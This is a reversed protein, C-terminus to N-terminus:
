KKKAPVATESEAEETGGEPAEMTAVAYGADDTLESPCWPFGSRGVHLTKVWDLSSVDIEIKEPIEGPLCRVTLFRSLQNLAGGKDVGKHNPGDARDSVEVEIAKDMAVEYFDVHLLQAACQISRSKASCSM